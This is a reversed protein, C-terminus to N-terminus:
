KNGRDLRRIFSGSFSVAKAPRLDEKSDFVSKWKEYNEVSYQILIITSRQRPDAPWIFVQLSTDGPGADHRYAIYPGDASAAPELPFQRALLPNRPIRMLLDTAARVAEDPSLGSLHALEHLAVLTPPSIRSRFTRNALVPSIPHQLAGIM